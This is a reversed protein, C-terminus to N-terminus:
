VSEIWSFNALFQDFPLTFTGDNRGDSGVETNGWPNHLVVCPVGNQETVGFISYAHDHVLGSEVTENSCATTPTRSAALSSLQNWLEDQTQDHLYTETPTRGTLAQLAFTPDDGQGIADFGAGAHNDGNYPYQSRFQAYAKELLKPWLERANRTGVYPDNGNKDVPLRRDVTIPIQQIPGDASTRGYLTVTVTGDTNEHFLNQIAAPNQHILSNVASLFYCDGLQGQMLDNESVGNVFLSGYARQYGAIGAVENPIPTAGPEPTNRLEPHLLHELTKQAAPQFADIHRDFFAALQKRDHKLAGDQKYTRAIQKAEAATVTGDKLAGSMTLPKPAPHHHKGHVKSM